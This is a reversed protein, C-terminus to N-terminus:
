IFSVDKIGFIDLIDFFFKVPFSVQFVSKKFGRSFQFVVRFVISM